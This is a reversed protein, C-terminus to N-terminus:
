SCTAFESVLELPLQTLCCSCIFCSDWFCCRTYDSSIQLFSVYIKFIYNFQFPFVDYNFIDSIRLILIIKSYIRQLINCLDSLISEPESPFIVNFYILFSNPILIHDANSHVLTLGFPPYRHIYYHVNPNRSSFIKVVPLSV